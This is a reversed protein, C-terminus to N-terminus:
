FCFNFDYNINFNVFISFFIKSVDNLQLFIFGKLQTMTYDNIFPLLENLFKPGFSEFDKEGFKNHARAIQFANSRNVRLNYSHTIRNLRM